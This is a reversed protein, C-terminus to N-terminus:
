STTLRRSPSQRSLSDIGGSLSKQRRFGSGGGLASGRAVASQPSSHSPKFQKLAHRATAIATDFEAQGETM